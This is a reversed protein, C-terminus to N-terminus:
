LLVLVNLPPLQDLDVLWTEQHKEAYYRVPANPDGHKEGVQNAARRSFEGWAFEFMQQSITTQANGTGLLNSRWPPRGMFPKQAEQALSALDRYTWLDNGDRRDLLRSWRWLYAFYKREYPYGGPVSIHPSTALLRMMLTSGDRGSCDVLIPSLQTADGSRRALRDSRTALEKLRM